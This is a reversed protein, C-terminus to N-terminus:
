AVDGMGGESLLKDVEEKMVPLLEDIRNLENEDEYRMRAIQDRVPLVNIEQITCGRELANQCLHHFHVINRLMKFQKDMSAYTDVEHYANQHLFDERLSKATELIMREQRSLADIGVLRVIERLRDEEELISMAETRLVSWEGDYINDWYEGLQEAYLSYSLLWNIAPFHRQYALNADLGWFVKTVRLSNQSVPESLDGGPPSVAGISTIAGERGESGLCLARGAREYFSALRTGLYAPYGEEGPMEELRGSIERLAEAWRSTSDAMLAVSYGMDRYYEAITIATYISAERAAVPMNSTNAILVTRKMLPEGSRPDVLEPFELLVDTMENGREGCGVYVVIEADAWKALQHQIVTKGSGFPGPVCAAGGRSLPFFTDVVRQGTPLPVNPALRQRVPRPTRVPWRQMMTVPIEKEGDDIVAVMEEVNFSGKRISKVRGKVGYPVLIRHKVLVTEQVEGLLDGEAVQAGEEVVPEFNWKKSRDLAPVNIGRSIYPSDAAQEILNLPRQVGDYFQEILGPGLEVSLPAGSSEVPEGPKLGSTEEYVQISAMAGKLEIIEGVLGLDGVRVVEYMGAGSMGDAIVLPGSIKAISGVIKEKNAM